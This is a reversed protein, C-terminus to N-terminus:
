SKENPGHIIACCSCKFTHDLGFQSVLNRDRNFSAMEQDRVIRGGKLVIVRSCLRNLIPLDQSILIKTGSLRQILEVFREESQPDLNSTPEDLILIRPSMSLVTAIAIRRKQGMSMHHTPRHECGLMDVALLGEQVRRDVEERSLGRELPAFAVDEGATPCFLQDAPDQFVFGVQQRIKPLNERVLAEGAILIKGHGLLLGALSKALTSKGAGNEGVLAVNEDEKVFFNLDELAQTGDPYRYSYGEVEIMCSEPKELQANPSPERPNSNIKATSYPPLLSEKGHHHGKGMGDCCSCRFTFDLGHDRLSGRQFVLEKMTYDHHIRGAKLVVARKCIEYLFLIDHSIVIMTKRLGKLIDLVAQESRSDLNSTPEDLVIISPEMALVTALAARKKQGYSLNQPAKDGLEELGVAELALRVREEVIEHPLGQQILGFAVDDYVTPSFLQDDPDQFVIGMQCRVWPLLERTLAKGQFLVEGKTPRLIGNLHRILTTKGAGNQGTLALADGERIALDIGQLAEQGDPYKFAVNRFEILPANELM